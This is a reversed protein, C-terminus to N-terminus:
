SPVWSGKPSVEYEFRLLHYYKPNFRYTPIHHTVELRLKIFIINV